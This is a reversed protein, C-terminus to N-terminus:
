QAANARHWFALCLALFTQLLLGVVPFSSGFQLYVALAFVVTGAIKLRPSGDGLLLYVVGLVASVGVPLLLLYQYM